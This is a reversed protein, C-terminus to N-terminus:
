WVFEQELALMGSEMQKALKREQQILHDRIKVGEEYSDAGLEELRALESTLSGKLEDRSSKASEVQTRLEQLRELPDKTSM